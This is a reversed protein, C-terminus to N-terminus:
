ILLRCIPCPQLLKLFAEDQREDQRYRTAKHRELIREALLSAAEPDLGPLDYVNDKFTTNALWEEDSRSGLLVWTKGGTLAALFDRVATQEEPPLTNPITLHAGTISELNDLILLHRHARLLKALMTQQASLPLPEFEGYYRAKGLLRMAIEFLIQQRTWAKQDYGFYFVQEVWRTTQWWYGLHHLLTTKGVGGMGRVLLLNHRLLQREIQLIDLDRGVFGYTAAPPVYNAAQRSYWARAEEPTFFRLQLQVEQNQYVVPLLWDELDVTQNFYARRGKQNYLELRGRRIARSLPQSSFVQAYLTRM